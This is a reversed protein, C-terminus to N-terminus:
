PTVYERDRAVAALVESPAVVGDRSRIMGKSTGTAAVRDGAMFTHTMYFYKDDWHTLQLSVEYPEWLKLPRRYSMTHDAIVPMWRRRLMVRALGTRIFLDVRNLDCITLFRGNNMHLNIDLDNPLTRLRLRSSAPGVPLRERFLSLLLVYLMRLVLSM